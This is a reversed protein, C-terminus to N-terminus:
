STQALYRRVTHRSTIATLAAIVPIVAAISIMGDLGLAFRGFLVGVQTGAESSLMNGAATGVLVFFLLAAVAGLLGGQLGISLFRGQFEGAIFKNSAGIYHLVDVIERNTAMAGRTAFIIALVTAAGILLLVLLGSLVITGAMTNLQQRWVAHTDLSAGTVAALNRELGAIDADQPDALQVVVLRPIEIATLDLGAGLWPELLKESEQLTLARASAVGPTAQALSVATRLNSEMVEGEVPRIQITVERGVDASWAIASKQVLVVGGLTVASLFGMITIMLLLTRGAVSKEPVIPAAGVRRPLLALIREIM